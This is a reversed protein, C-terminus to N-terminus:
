ESGRASRHPSQKAADDDRGRGGGGRRGGGSVGRDGKAPRGSGDAEGLDVGCARAEAFAAHGRDGREAGACGQRAVGRGRVIGQGDAQAFERVEVGDLRRKLPVLEHHHGVPGGLRPAPLFGRERLELM